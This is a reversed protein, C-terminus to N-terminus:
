QSHKTDGLLLPGVLSTRVDAAEMEPAALATTECSCVVTLDADEFFALNGTLRLNLNTIM